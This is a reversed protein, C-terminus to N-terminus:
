ILLQTLNIFEARRKEPSLAAFLATLEELNSQRLEVTRVDLGTMVALDAVHIQMGEKNIVWGLLDITIQDILIGQYEKIHARELLLKLKDPDHPLSRVLGSKPDLNGNVLDLLHRESYKLSNSAPTEQLQMANQKGNQKQLKTRLQGLLAQIEAPQSNINVVPTANNDASEINKILTASDPLNSDGYRYFWLVEM